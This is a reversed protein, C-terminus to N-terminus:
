QSPEGQLVDDDPLLEIELRRNQERGEATSNSAVPLSAGLGVASIRSPLVGEAVLLNRVSDAREESLRQGAREDSQGDTHGKVILRQKPYPQLTHALARVREVGAASLQASSGDFLTDGDLSVVLADKKREVQAGGAALEAQQRELYSGVPGSTVVRLAASSTVAPQASAPAPEAAPVAPPPNQACASIALAAAAALTRLIAM